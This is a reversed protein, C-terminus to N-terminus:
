KQVGTDLALCKYLLEEELIQQQKHQISVFLAVLRAVDIIIHNNEIQFATYNQLHSILETKTNSVFKRIQHTVADKSLLVAVIEKM